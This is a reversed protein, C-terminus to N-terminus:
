CSSWGLLGATGIASVIAWPVAIVASSAEESINVSNVFSGITWVPVLFSIIFAYGDPWGSVVFFDAHSASLTLNSYYMGNTFDLVLSQGTPIAIPLMVIVTFCLSNVMTIFYLMCIIWSHCVSIEPLRLTEPAMDFHNSGPLVLILQQQLKCGVWNVCGVVYM